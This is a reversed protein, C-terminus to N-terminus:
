AVHAAGAPVAAAALEEDLFSAFGRRDEVARAIRGLATELDAMATAISLRLYHQGETGITGFSRRDLTAVHYRLLLFRQLLTSPSSRQRQERPLAEWAAVAGLRECVGAVDPFVYFTGRPLRCRIGPIAALGAAVRDRRQRFSEVMAAICPPSLPSELAERAGEQNYPPFCSYYNINLNRFAAAEEVTPFAAWGLRGGTWAYSKSVGSVIITRQEMGPVSAISCHRAGDFLVDEYVEDSYVRVDPAAHRRIVAALEALQEPTAVGGTPNSPFNLYVLKSRSSLLPGLDDGDLAFGKEERLSVPVPRAGVYRTFSEYIPFGPSPYVVEDGPDVYTQQCLGIPPKAGPFVVVREATIRIGRTASLHRAIAQRLSPIGQPDSYHTNDADLQRKVEDRVHAPLPFDPEGINCRIVRHGQEELGRILPALTFANETALLGARQAFLSM